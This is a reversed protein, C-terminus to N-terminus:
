TLSSPRVVIHRLPHSVDGGGAHKVFEAPSLFSGHCVCVIRVEGGKRYRYLFGEIRKGNPGLGRTSVCPMDIMMNRTAESNNNVTVKASPNEVEAGVHKAPIELATGPTVVPKHENHKPLSQVSAPSRAETCGNTGAIRLSM